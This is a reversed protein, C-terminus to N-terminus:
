LAAVGAGLIALVLGVGGSRLLAGANTTQIAVSTNLSSSSNKAPTSSTLTTLTSGTVSPGTSAQTSSPQANNSATMAATTATGASPTSGSNIISSVILAEAATLSRFFSQADPPLENFISNLEAEGQTGTPLPQGLLQTLAGIAQTDTEIELVISTFEPAATLSSLLSAEAEAVATSQAVNSAPNEEQNNNSSKSVQEPTLSTVTFPDFAALSGGTFAAATMLTLLTHM